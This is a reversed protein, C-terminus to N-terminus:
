QVGYGKLIVDRNFNRPTYTVSVGRPPLIRSLSEIGGPIDSLVNKWIHVYEM